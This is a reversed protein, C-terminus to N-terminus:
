LREALTPLDYGVAAAYSSISRVVLNRQAAVEPPVCSARAGIMSRYDLSRGKFGFRALIAAITENPHQCLTEYRIDIRDEAPISSLSRLYGATLIRTQYVLGRALLGPWRECLLRAVRLPFESRIFADYRESLMALYASPRTVGIVVLRYLSGLVHFPNRHIFVIKADPMLTKIRRGNGFDFPNKLLLSRGKGGDGQILECVSRFMPFNRRTILTGSHHNDLIFGYEEASDPRLGLIDVGRTCLGLQEFREGLWQRSRVKDLHRCRLEDFCIVHRATVINFCGSAALMEHLITTGSRPLGLIFVPSRVTDHM